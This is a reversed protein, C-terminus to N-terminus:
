KTSASEKRELMESETYGNQVLIRYGDMIASSIEGIRNEVQVIDKLNIIEDDQAPDSHLEHCRISNWVTELKNLVFSNRAPDKIYKAFKQLRLCNGIDAKKPNQKYEDFTLFCKDIMLRIIFGEFTKAFPYLIPNYLPIKLNKEKVAELIGVASVLTRQDNPYLFEFAEKSIRDQAKKYIDLFVDPIEEIAQKVQKQEKEPVYLLVNEVESLPNFSQIIELIETFLPSSAGQLLLTGNNFQTISFRYVGQTIDFKYKITDKAKSEEINKYKAKIAFKIDEQLEQKAIKIASHIPITNKETSSDGHYADQKIDETQFEFFTGLGDPANELVIKSSKNGKFYLIVGFGECAFKHGYGNNIEKESIIRYKADTLVGRVKEIAAEKDYVFTISNAMERVGM